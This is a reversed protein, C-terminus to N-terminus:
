SVYGAVEACEIELISPAPGKIVKVYNLKHKSLDPDLKAIVEKVKSLLQVQRDARDQSPNPM